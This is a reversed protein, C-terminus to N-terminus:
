PARGSGRCRRVDLGGGVWHKALRGDELPIDNGCIRCSLRRVEKVKHTPLVKVHALYEEETRLSMQCVLCWYSKVAGRPRNQFRLSSLPVWSM